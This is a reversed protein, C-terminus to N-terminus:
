KRRGTWAALLSAVLSTIPVALVLGISGVMTRVIEEAIPERNIRLWLPEPYLTFLLLLPLSAGLYAMLLTNVMSAIHDRGINLSHGFLQRWNLDPNARGLEFIASSQGVCVDDLVGLAGIIIGGLLLGQLGFDPGKEMVLFAGEDASLGTLHAWDVFFWALVGTLVLSIAMGVMAAHAKRNWGYSLYNSFALIAIAGGISIWVPDRGALIQPLIFAFIVALSLMMGALSRAGRGWGVLLVLVLFLAVVWVLQRNRVYDSIYFTDGEPGPRRMIYVQDGVDYLSERSTLVLSGEEVLVEQGALSGTEVYLRLSQYPYVAGDGQEVLGEELVEVVRGQMTETGGLEAPLTFTEQQELYPKVFLLGAGVVLALILGAVLLYEWFRESRLM